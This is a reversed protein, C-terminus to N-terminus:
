QVGSWFEIMATQLDYVSVLNRNAWRSEHHKAVIWIESMETVSTIEFVLKPFGVIKRSARYINDISLTFLYECFQKKKM